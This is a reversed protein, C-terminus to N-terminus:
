GARERNARLLATPVMTQSTLGLDRGAQRRSLGTLELIYSRAHAPPFADDALGRLTLGADRWRSRLADFTQESYAPLRREAYAVLRAEQQTLPQLPYWVHPYLIIVRGDPKLLDRIRQAGHWLDLRGIGRYSFILDFHAEHIPLDPASYHANILGYTYVAANYLGYGNLAQAAHEPSYTVDIGLVRRTRQALTISSAGHGCGVDLVDENGAFTSDHYALRDIFQRRRSLSSEIRARETDALSHTVARPAPLGLTELWGGITSNAPMAGSSM